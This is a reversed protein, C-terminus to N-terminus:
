SPLIYRWGHPTLPWILRERRDDRWGLRNVSREGGERHVAPLDEYVLYLGFLSRVLIPWPGPVFIVLGTGALRRILIQERPDCQDPFAIACAAERVVAVRDTSRRLHRLSSSRPERKETNTRCLSAPSPEGPTDFAGTNRTNFVYPIAPSLPIWM